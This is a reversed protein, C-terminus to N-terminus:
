RTAILLIGACIWLFALGLIGVRGYRLEDAGEDWRVADTAVAQAIRIVGFIMCGAGANGREFLSVGGLIFGFVVDLIITTKVIVERRYDPPPLQPGM